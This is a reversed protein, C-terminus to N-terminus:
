STEYNFKWNNNRNADAFPLVLRFYTGYIATTSNSNILEMELRRSPKSDYAYTYAPFKSQPLYMCMHWLLRSQRAM